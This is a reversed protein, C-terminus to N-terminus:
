LQDVGQIMSGPLPKKIAHLARGQGGRNPHLHADAQDAPVHYTLVAGGKGAFYGAESKVSTLMHWSAPNLVREPPTLGQERISEINVSKTGHYLVSFQDKSLHEPASV